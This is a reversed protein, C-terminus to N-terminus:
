TEVASTKVLRLKKCNIQLQSQGGAEKINMAAGPVWNTALDTLPVPLEGLVGPCVANASGTPKGKCIVGKSDISVSLILGLM